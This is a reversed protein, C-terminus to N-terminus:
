PSGGCSGDDVNAKPDYESDNADTCGLVAITQCLEDNPFDASTIGETVNSVNDWYEKYNPDTCGATTYCSGDDVTVNSDLSPCGIYACYKSDIPNEEVGEVKAYITFENNGDIIDESTLDVVTEISVTTDERPISPHYHEIVTLNEEIRVGNKYIAARIKHEESTAPLDAVVDKIEIQAKLNYKGAVTPKFTSISPFYQGSTDFYEERFNVKTWVDRQLSQIKIESSTGASGTYGHAKFVIGMDPSNWYTSGICTTPDNNLDVTPDYNYADRDACGYTPCHPDIPHDTTAFETTTWDATGKVIRFEDMYGGTGNNSDPMVGIKMGTAQDYTTNINWTNSVQSGDSAEGTLHAGDIFIRIDNTNDRTTAIHYWVNNTFTKPYYRTSITGSANISNLVLFPASSIQKLELQLSSDTLSTWPSFLIANKTADDFRVWFDITFEGDLWYGESNNVEIHSGTDPFYCSSKIAFNDPGKARPTANGAYSCTVPSLSGQSSDVPATDTPSENFHLLLAYDCSM